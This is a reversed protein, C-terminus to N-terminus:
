YSIDKPFIPTLRPPDVSIAREPRLLNQLSHYCPHEIQTIVLGTGKILTQLPNKLKFTRLERLPIPHHENIIPRPGREMEWYLPMTEHCAKCQEYPEARTEIMEHDKYLFLEWGDETIFRKPPTDFFHGSWKESFILNTLDDLRQAKSAEVSFRGNSTRRIASIPHLIYDTRMHTNNEYQSKETLVLEEEKGEIQLPALKLLAFAPYVDQQITIPVPQSEAPKEPIQKRGFMRKTFPGKYIFTVSKSHYM